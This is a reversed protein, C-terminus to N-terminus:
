GVLSVMFQEESIIPIGYDRAKRVRGSATAPDAAVLVRASSTVADGAIMGLDRIVQEYFERPKSMPGALVVTDGPELAPPSDAIRAASTTALREFESASRPQIAWAVMTTPIRLLRAVAIIEARQTDSLSFNRWVATVLTDFYRRHLIDRAFSDIGLGTAYVGLEGAEGATLFGNCVAQDIMGLYQTEHQDVPTNTGFNPIRSVADELFGRPSNESRGRPIWANRAGGHEPWDVRASEAFREGISPDHRLFASFLRATATADALAEHESGGDIDFAACSDALSRGSGPLMLRALNMTCIASDPTLPSEIGVAALEAHVFSLHFTTHHAVIVRGDLLEILRSAVGSFAPADVMDIERIGHMRRVPFDRQPHVLTEFKGEIAGHEDLHVVAIEVLKHGRDPWLGTTEVDIVAYGATTM